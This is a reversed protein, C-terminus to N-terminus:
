LGEAESHDDLMVSRRASLIGAVSATEAGGAADCDGTTITRAESSYCFSTGDGAVAVAVYERQISSGAPATVSVSRVSVSKSWNFQPNVALTTATGALYTNHDMYWTDEAVALGRLDSKASMEAAQDVKDLQTQVGATFPVALGILLVLLLSLAVGVSGTVIGAVAVGRNDAEGQSV